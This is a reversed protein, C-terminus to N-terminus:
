LMQYVTAFLVVGGVVTGFAMLGIWFRRERKLLGSAIENGEAERARRRFYQARMFPIYAFVLASVVTGLWLVTLVAARQGSSLILGLSAYGIQFLISHAVAMLAVRGIERRELGPQADRIPKVFWIATSFAGLLAAPLAAVLSAGLKPSGSKMAWATAGGVVSGAAQVQPSMGISLAASVAITFAATPATRVLLTEVEDLLAVRLRVRARELRKKVSNESLGLLNAVQAVSRDERYFLTVVERADDPLADIARSLRMREEEDMLRDDASNSPDPALSLVEDSVLTLWRRARRWARAYQRAHNRTLQRLWPAFSQPNRLKHLDRWAAVFVQQAVDESAGVDRVIALSISCVVNRYADVLRTYADADGRQAAVIDSDLNSEVSRELEIQQANM